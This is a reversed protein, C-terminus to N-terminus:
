CSATYASPATYVWATCTAYICTRRRSTCTCSICVHIVRASRLVRTYICTQVHMYLMYVPATCARTDRKYALLTSPPTDQARCPMKYARATHQTHGQEVAADTHQITCVAYATYPEARRGRSGYRMCSELNSGVHVMRQRPTCAGYVIPEM